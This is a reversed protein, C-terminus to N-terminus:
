LPESDFDAVRPPPELRADRIARAYRGPSIGMKRKFFRTFESEREYGLDSAIAMLKESPDFDIRRKAYEIRTGEHFEQMTQAYTAAFERELTRMSSGIAESIVELRLKVNGHYGRLLDYMLEAHPTPATDRGSEFYRNRLRQINELADREM